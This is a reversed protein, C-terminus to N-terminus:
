EIMINDIRQWQLKSDILIADFQYFEAREEMFKEAAQAIRHLQDRSLALHADEIDERYKVEIFHVVNERKAILDVEYAGHRYNRALIEFKSRKYIEEAYNEAAFGKQKSTNSM